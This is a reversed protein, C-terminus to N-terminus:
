IAGSPAAVVNTLSQWGADSIGSHSLIQYRLIDIKELNCSFRSVLEGDRYFHFYPINEVGLGSCHQCLGDNSLDVVIFVVDPNQKATQKLKYQMRACAACWKGKFHVVVLQGNSSYSQVRFEFEAPTHVQLMNSAMDAASDGQLSRQTEEKELLRQQQRAEAERRRRIADPHPSLFAEVTAAEPTAATSVSNPRGISARPCSFSTVSRAPAQAVRASPMTVSASRM